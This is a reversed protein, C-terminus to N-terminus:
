GCKETICNDIRYLIEQFSKDLDCKSSIVTNTTCNFYLPPFEINGNGKNKSLLVKTTIIDRFVAMEDLLDKFLGKITLKSPQLPALLDKSDVIESKYTRLYWAM